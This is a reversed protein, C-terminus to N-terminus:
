IPGSERIPDQPAAGLSRWLGHILVIAIWVAIVAKLVRVDLM